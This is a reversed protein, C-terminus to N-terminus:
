WYPKVLKYTPERPHKMGSDEQWFTTFECSAPFHRPLTVVPHKDIVTSQANGSSMITHNMDNPPTSSRLVLDYPMKSLTFLFIFSQNPYYSAPVSNQSWM